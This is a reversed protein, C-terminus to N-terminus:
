LIVEFGEFVPHGLYINNVKGANKHAQRFNESKTWAIFLAESEWLSHSAYVCHDEQYKGKVLNFKLFGPVDDLHSDRNKWIQEFVEEKGTKVKFRNFAIYMVASGM